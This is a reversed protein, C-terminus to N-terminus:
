TDYLVTIAHKHPFFFFYTHKSSMKGTSWKIKGPVICRLLCRIVYWCRIKPKPVLMRSWFFYEYCVPYCLCLFGVYLNGHSALLLFCSVTRWLNFSLVCSATVWGWLASTNSGHRGVPRRLRRVSGCYSASFWSKGAIDQSFASSPYLSSCCCLLIHLM